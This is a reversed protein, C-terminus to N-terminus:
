AVMDNAYFHNVRTRRIACLQDYEAKQEQTFRFNQDKYAKRLRQLGQWILQSKMIHKLPTFYTPPHKDGM